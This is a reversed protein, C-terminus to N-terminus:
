SKEGFMFLSIFRSKSLVKYLLLSWFISIISIVLLYTLQLTISSVPDLFLILQGVRFFHLAFLIHLIYIPLTRKGIYSLKSMYINSEEMKAFLGWIAFAGFLQLLSGGYTYVTELLRSYSVFYRCSFLLVFGVVCITYFVDSHCCTKYFSKYKRMLIGLAFPIWYSSFEGINVGGLKIGNLGRFLLFSILITCIEVWLKNRKCKKFMWIFLYGIISLEFLSLLFWYGRVHEVFYIISFTCIYPLLIRLSKKKLFSDFKPMEDKYLFYGSIMFFLGMHFSYIIQWLLGGVKINVPQSVDYVCISVYDNFTWGIAHGMVVLIIAFGKLADIYEIRETLAM